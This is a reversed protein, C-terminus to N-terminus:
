SRPYHQSLLSDMTQVSKEWTFDQSIRHGNEELRTRYETDDILRLIGEAISEPSKAEVIHATEVHFAYDETGYQTKIVPLGCAMAELPFLPFGEYWSASLLKDTNRYAEALRAPKLSGLYDYGEINNGPTLLADGYVRWNINIDALLARALSVDQVMERLRKWEANRGGYSIITIEKIYVAVGPTGTFTKHCIANLCLRVDNNGKEAIVKDRLWTSNAIM